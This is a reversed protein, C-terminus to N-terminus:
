LILWGIVWGLAFWYLMSLNILFSAKYGIGEASRGYVKRWLWPDGLTIVPYFLAFVLPPWLLGFFGSILGLIIVYICEFFPLPKSLWFLKRNGKRIERAARHSFKAYNRDIHIAAFEGPALLAYRKKM